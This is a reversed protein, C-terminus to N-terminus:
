QFLEGKEIKQNIVWQADKELMDEFAIGREKAKKQIMKTMEPNLKWQEMIEQKKMKIFSTSDINVEDRLPLEGRDIRSAEEHLVEDILLDHQSAYINLATLWDKDNRIQNITRAENIRKTNRITPMGDGDLGPILEPDNRLMWAMNKRLEEETLDTYGEKNRFQTAYDTVTAEFLSDSM